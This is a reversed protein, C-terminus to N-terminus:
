TGEEEEAAEAGEGEALETGKDRVTTRGRVQEFKDRMKTLAIRIQGESNITRECVFL